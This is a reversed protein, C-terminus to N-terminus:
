LLALEPVLLVIFYTDLKLYRPPSVTGLNKACSNEDIIDKIIDDIDEEESAGKTLVKSFRAREEAAAAKAEAEEEEERFRQKKNGHAHARETCDRRSLRCFKNEVEDLLADLDDAM